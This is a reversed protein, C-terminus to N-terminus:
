QAISGDFGSLLAGDLGEECNIGASFRSLFNAIESRSMMAGTLDMRLEHARRYFSAAVIMSIVLLVSLIVVATTM